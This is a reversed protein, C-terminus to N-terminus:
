SGSTNQGKLRERLLRHPSDGSVAQGNHVLTRRLEKLDLRTGAASSGGPRVNLGPTQIIKAYDTPM